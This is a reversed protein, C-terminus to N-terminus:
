GPLPKGPFQKEHIPLLGCFAYLAAATMGIAAFGLTIGGIVSLFAGLVSAYSNLAWAWSLAQPAGKELARIGWPFPLGMLFCCPALLAASVFLRLALGTHLLAPFLLDAGFFTAPLLAPLAWSVLRRHYGKEQLRGSGWSGMGAFVLACFLVLALAYVPQGLFLTFKQIFLNEVLMFAIGIGTFYLVIFLPRRVPVKRKRYIAAPWILFVPFLALVFVTGCLLVIQGMFYLLFFFNPPKFVGPFRAYNFFFPSNDTVPMIKFPYRDYFRSRDPAQVFAYFANNLRRDPSYLLSFGKDRCVTDITQIQTATFPEKKMLLVAFLGVNSHIVMLHREPATIGRRGLAETATTFLRLMEMPPTFAFRLFTVIGRDSLHALYESFADVTYLYSESFCYAGSLAGSLSDVGSLHILDYTGPDRSLWHRGEAVHIEVDPRNYLNGAYEALENKVSSVISPNIEVGTVASARYHLASLIDIGGGAGLALVSPRPILSYALNAPLYDYFPLDLTAGDMKYAATVAWSDIIIKVLEPMPGPYARSLGWLSEHYRPDRKDASYVDVCSFSNWKRFLRNEPTVDRRVLLSEAFPTNGDTLGTVAIVAAAALGCAARLRGSHRTRSFALCFAGALSTLLTVLVANLAGALSLLPLILLAGAGAGSLNACYLRGIDRPRGAIMASVAMGACAFALTFVSVLLAAFLYRPTPAGVMASLAELCSSQFLMLAVGMGTALAFGLGAAAATIGNKELNPFVVLVIGACAFGLMVIGIALFSFHFWIMTSFIRTLCIELALLAMSVLFLGALDPWSARDGANSGPTRSNEEPQMMM